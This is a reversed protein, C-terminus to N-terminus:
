VTYATHITQQLVQASNPPSPNSGKKQGSGEYLIYYLLRSLVPCLQFEIWNFAWEPRM